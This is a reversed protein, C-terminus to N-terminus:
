WTTMRARRSARRRTSGGAKATLMLIPTWDGADRMAQCVRYGNMGPLLLDLVVLDFGGVMVKSLGQAGDACREVTFGEGTLTACLGEAVADDDEIVLIRVRRTEWARRLM